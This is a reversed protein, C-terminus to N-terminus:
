SALSFVESYDNFRNSTTYHCGVPSYSLQSLADNAVVLDLTRDGEAGCNLFVPISASGFHRWSHRFLSGFARSLSPPRRRLLGSLPPPPPDGEAGFNLFPRNTSRGCGATTQFPPIFSSEGTKEGWRNVEDKNGLFEWTLLFRDIRTRQDM